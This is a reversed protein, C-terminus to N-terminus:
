DRFEQTFMEGYIGGDIVGIGVRGFNPSLINKRHGESGMLGQMALVVNPALALNEGAHEYTIDAIVLRDFPSVGEPTYHSFYGRKLMDIGHNRAVQRLQFDISLAELGKAQREKNIMMLMEKEAQEDVKVANTRFNLRILEDSQPKVTFFNITEDIAQGFVSNLTKEFGQTKAVLMNGINSASIAKKLVPSFPFTLIVTLIFSLLITGSAMGAMVGFLKNISYVYSLRVKGGEKGKIEALTTIFGRSIFNRFVLTFVFEAIFAIAFFSVANAVGPSLAFSFVLQKGLVSYLKIGIFFSLAFSVLDFFADFFGVVYGEYAYFLIVLIIFFDIANFGFQMFSLSNILTNADPM